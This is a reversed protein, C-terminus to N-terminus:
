TPRLAGMEFGSARRRLNAAHRHLGGYAKRQGRGRQQGHELRRLRHITGAMGIPRDRRVSWAVRAAQRRMM